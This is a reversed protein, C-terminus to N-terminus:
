LQDFSKRITKGLRKAKRAKTALKELLDQSRVLADDWKLEGDIDQLLQRALQNQASRPLNSAKEFAHALATTM